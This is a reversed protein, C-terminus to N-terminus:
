FKIGVGLNITHTEIKSDKRGQSELAMTRKYGGYLFVGNNFEYGALVGGGFHWHGLGLTVTNDWYDEWYDYSNDSRADDTDFGYGILPGAGIFFKGSGADFQGLVYVPIQVSSYKYKLRDYGFRLRGETYSLSLEPQIALNKTLEITAFVDVTFGPDFTNHKDIMKTLKLNTADGSAKLGFSTKTQANIQMALTIGLLLLCTLITKKM